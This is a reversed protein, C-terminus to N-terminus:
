WWSSSGGGVEGGWGEVVEPVGQLMAPGFEVRRHLIRRLGVLLSGQVAAHGVKSEQEAVVARRPELVLDNLHIPPGNFFSAAVATVGSHCRQAM